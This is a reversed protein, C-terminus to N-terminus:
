GATAVGVDGASRRFCRQEAWTHPYVTCSSNEIWWLLRLSSHGFAGSLLGLGKGWWLLECGGGIDAGILVFTGIGVVQAEPGLLGAHEDVPMLVETLDEIPRVRRRRLPEDAASEVDGVVAEVAMHEGAVAVAHGDIEFTLRSIGADEGIGLQEGLHRLCGIREGVEPDSGAIADGDV